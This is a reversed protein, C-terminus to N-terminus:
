VSHIIGIANIALPFGIYPICHIMAAIMTEKSNGVKINGLAHSYLQKETGLTALVCLGLLERTKIELGGRTYFDGFFMETLYKPIAKGLDGPLDQMKEKIEEGYIPMQIEKGKTYREEESVTGQNELPLAINRGNFVQNIENVANLTKPFGIFPACLYIAERIEVPTVGINLAANTHAKLQPLAQQTALSSVTILERLKDSLNGTYFVEGFIFRQLISMLEPDPNPNNASPEGFLERYKKQSLEIRNM